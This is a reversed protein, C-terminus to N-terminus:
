PSVLAFMAFGEDALLRGAVVEPEAYFAINISVFALNVARLSVTAWDAGAFPMGFFEGAFVIENFMLFSTV